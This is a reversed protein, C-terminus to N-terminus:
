SVDFPKQSKGLLRGCRFDTKPVQAGRAGNVILESGGRQNCSSHRKTEGNGAFQAETLVRRQGFPTHFREASNKVVIVVATKETDCWAETIGSVFARIVM